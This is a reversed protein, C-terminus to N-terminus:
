KVGWRQKYKNITEFDIQAYDDKYHIAKIAENAEKIQQKLTMYEDYEEQTIIRGEESM